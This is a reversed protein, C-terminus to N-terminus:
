KIELKRMVRGHEKRIFAVPTKRNNKGWTFRLDTEGKSKLDDIMRALLFIRWQAKPYHKGSRWRHLMVRSCHLREATETVSWQKKLMVKFLEVILPKSMQKFAERDM